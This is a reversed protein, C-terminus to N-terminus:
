AINVQCVVSFAILNASEGQEMFYYIYDNVHKIKTDITFAYKTSYFNKIIIVFQSLSLNLRVDSNCIIIYCALSKWSAFSELHRM